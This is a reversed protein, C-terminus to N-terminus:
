TTLKLLLWRLHETVFPARLFKALNVPFCRHWLRKKSLTAPRLSAVKNFFSVKACTKGTFKAFNRLVGERVSCRWHSSRSRITWAKLKILSLGRVPTESGATQLDEVFYTNKFLECYERSFVQTPTASMWLNEEFYNNQFNIFELLKWIECPLM